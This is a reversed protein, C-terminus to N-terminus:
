CFFFFFFFSSQRIKPHLRNSTFNRCLLAEHVYAGYVHSPKCAHLKEFVACVLITHPRSLAYGLPDHTACCPAADRMSLQWFLFIIQFSSQWQPPPLILVCCQKGM